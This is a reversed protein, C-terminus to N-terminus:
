SYTSQEISLLMAWQKYTDGLRPSTSRPSPPFYAWGIFIEPSFCFLNNEELNRHFRLFYYLGTLHFFFYLESNYDLTVLSCLYPSLSIWIFLFLLFPFILICYISTIASALHWGPNHVFYTLSIPLSRSELFCTKFFVLIQPSSFLWFAFICPSLM